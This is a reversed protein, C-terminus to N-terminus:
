DTSGHCPSNSKTAEIAKRFDVESGPRARFFLEPEVGECEVLVPGNSTEIIDIRVYLIDQETCTAGTALQYAPLMQAYVDQAFAIVAAPPTVPFHLSGGREAHVMISNEAAKKLISHSYHGGLFTLSWEGHTTIEPIFTQLMYATASLLQDMEAQHESAKMKNDIFFLGIGGASICPKLVFPGHNAFTSSLDITTGVEYYRTPITLIGCAAFDRLYHKDLLWRMLAPPNVIRLGAHEIADLWAFFNKKKIDSNMYDWPSRVIILDMATLLHPPTGWIIASTDHGHARLDTVAIYDDPTFAPEASIFDPETITPFLHSLIAEECTVFGIKM